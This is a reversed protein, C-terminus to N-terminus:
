RNPTVIVPELFEETACKRDGRVLALVKQAARQGIEVLPRKMYAFTPAHPDSTDPPIDYGIWEIEPRDKCIGIGVLHAIQRAFKGSTVIGTAGDLSDLMAQTDDVGAAFIGLTGYDGPPHLRLHAKAEDAARRCGALRRRSIRDWEGSFALLSRHGRDLLYKAAMYGGAEDDNCVCPIGGAAYSRDALVIPIGSEYLEKLRAHNGNEEYGGSDPMRRYVPMVILGDVGKDLIERITQMERDLRLDTSAFLLHYGDAQMTRSAEEAMIGSPSDAGLPAIIGSRSGAFVGGILGTKPRPAAPAGLIVRFGNGNVPEILGKHVLLTTGSRVTVRGVGLERALVREGPLFEDTGFEGARIRTELLHAVQEYKTKMIFSGPMVADHCPM